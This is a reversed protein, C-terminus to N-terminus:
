KKKSNDSNCIGRSYFDLRESQQVTTNRRSSRSLYIIVEDTPHAPRPCCEGAAANTRQTENWSCVAEVCAALGADADIEEEDDETQMEKALLNIEAALEAQYAALIDSEVCSFHHL